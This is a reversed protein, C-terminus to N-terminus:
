GLHKLDVGDAGPKFGERTMHDSAATMLNRTTDLGYNEITQREVGYRLVLLGRLEVWTHAQRRDPGRSRGGSVSRRDAVGGRRDHGDPPLVTKVKANSEAMVQDVAQPTDLNVGLAIALRAIRSNLEEISAGVRKLHDAVAAQQEQEVSM